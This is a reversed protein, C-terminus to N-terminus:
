RRATWPWWGTRSTNWWTKLSSDIAFPMLGVDWGSLYAPLEDYSKGGLWHINPRKPLIAPDIKVVPGIMVFQWYPRLDATRALLDIDFREDIVGFFGLRPAPIM